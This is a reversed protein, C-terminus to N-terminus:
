SGSAKDSSKRLYEIEEDILAIDAEVGLLREELMRKYEEHTLRKVPSWESRFAREWFGKKSAGNNAPLQQVNESHREDAIAYLYQAGTGILGWMITGPIVHGRGGLIPILNQM